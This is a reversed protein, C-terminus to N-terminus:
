RPWSRSRRRRLRCAWRSWVTRSGGWIKSSTKTKKNQDDLLGNLTDLNKEAGQFASKMGTDRAGFSYGIGLNAM